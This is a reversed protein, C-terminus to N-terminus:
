RGRDHGSRRRLSIRQSCFGGRIGPRRWQALGCRGGILVNSAVDFVEVGSSTTVQTVNEQLVVSGESGVSGMVVIDDSATDGTTDGSFIFDTGSSEVVYRDPDIRFLASGAYNTLGKQQGGFVAGDDAVTLADTATTVGVGAINDAYFSVVGNSDVNPSILDLGYNAQPLAAM